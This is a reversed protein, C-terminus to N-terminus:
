VPVALPQTSNPGKPRAHARKPKPVELVEAQETVLSVVVDGSKPLSGESVIELKGSQTIVFLVTATLGYRILYDEYTFTDTINTKKLKGGAELSHELQEYNLSGGFLSRGEIHATSTTRRHGPERRHPSLQYVNARGFDAAFELSALRNLDDNSTMAMM